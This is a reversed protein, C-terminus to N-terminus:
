NKVKKKIILRNQLLYDTLQKAILQNGFASYHSAQTAIFLKNLEAKRLADYSSVTYKGNEIKKWIDNNPIKNFLQMKQLDDYSALKLMIYTANEEVSQQLPEILKTMLEQGEFHTEIKKLAEIRYYQQYIQYLYLNELIQHGVRPSDKFYEHEFYSQEEYNVIISDLIKEPSITPFNVWSLSGSEFIARPKTYLIGTPPHSCYKFINLNLWCESLHVGQIVIDPQLKKAQYEWRLLTQDNGFSGVGMNLVEVKKGAATLDKELYFGLSNTDTVEASLMVSSGLLLIRVTDESPYTSYERLGRIGTNNFHMLSDQSVSNPRHAWGTISDYQFYSTSDIALEDYLEKWESVPKTKVFPYSGLFYITGNSQYGVIQLLIEITVIFVIIFKITKGLAKINYPIQIFLFSDLL